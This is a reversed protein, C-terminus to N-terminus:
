AHLHGKLATELRVCAFCSVCPKYALLALDLVRRALSISRELKVCAMDRSMGAMDNAVEQTRQTAQTAHTRSSVKTDILDSDRYFM